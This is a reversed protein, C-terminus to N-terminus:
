PCVAAGTRVLAHRTEGQGPGSPGLALTAALAGSGELDGGIRCPANADDCTLSLSYPYGYPDDESSSQLYVTGSVPVDGALGAGSATGRVWAATSFLCGGMACSGDHRETHRAGLGGGRVLHEIGCGPETWEPARAVDECLTLTLGGPESWASAIAAMAVDDQEPSYSSEYGAQYCALAGLAALAFPWRRSSRPVTEMVV